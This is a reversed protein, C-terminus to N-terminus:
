FGIAGRAGPKARAVAWSYTRRPPRGLTRATHWVGFAMAILLGVGLLTLLGPM